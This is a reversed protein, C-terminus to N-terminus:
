RRSRGIDRMRSRMDSERRRRLLLAVSLVVLLALVVYVPSDAIAGRIRELASPAAVDRGALLPVSAIREGDLTVTASGIREGRELPGEVEEPLDRVVKLRQDQRVGIRIARPSVLALEGDEFRIPVRAAPRNGPVPVRKDYLSFGYDMLEVTEDDRAQETPAGMVAGILETAKRRGDSALVYGARDTHGTKIGKAWGYDAVFGNVTEIELPPRYSRLTASRSSAIKRFRPNEMLDRGLKALDRASSFQDPGDLGIPNEYSTNRLGLRRATRNMLGVFRPVTGSVARALTVAADNGSLLILGYLLDRVSVRQGAELGMLSEGPIAQYDVSAVLRNMPLRDLALYATMMKTTSAMLLRRDPARAALVDGSRADILVWSRADLAPGGSDAAESQDSGAAGVGFGLVAVAVALAFRRL